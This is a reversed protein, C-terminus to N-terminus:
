PATVAWTGFFTGSLSANKSLMAGTKWGEFSGVANPNDPIVSSGSTFVCMWGPDAEPNAVGATGAHDDNECEPPVAETRGVYTFESAGALPIPFSVPTVRNEVFGPVIVVLPSTDGLAWTGTETKGTPLTETFGTQGDEGDKGNCVYADPSASTVKVGGEGSAEECEAGTYATANASTGNTGNTGNTGDSGNSGNQGDAGPAGPLGNAGPAGAPGQPGATAYKKGWKKAEKKILKKEPQSLGGAAIASGGLAVVMAIMGLIVGVTGFRDHFRRYLSM